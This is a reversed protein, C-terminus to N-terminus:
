EEVTGEIITSQGNMGDQLGTIYAIEALVQIRRFIEHPNVTQGSMAGLVVLENTTNSVQQEVAAPIRENTNM